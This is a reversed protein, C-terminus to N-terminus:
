REPSEERRSSGDSQKEVWTILADLQLETEAGHLLQSSSLRVGTTEDVRITPNPIKSAGSSRAPSPAAAVAKGRVRGLEARLRALDGTYDKSVDDTIRDQEAEIKAVQAKNLAAAAVQANRYNARDEARARESAVQAQQAKIKAKRESNVRFSQFALLVVLLGLGILKWHRTATLLPLAM